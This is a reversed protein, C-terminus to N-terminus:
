APEDAAPEPSEVEEDSAVAQDRGKGVVYASLAAVSLWLMDWQSMGQVISKGGFSGVKPAQQDRLLLALKPPSDAPQDSNAVETADEGEEGQAVAAAASAGIDFQEMVKAYVQRSGVCAILAFVVAMAGRGYSSRSGAGAAWHVALGTALGVLIAMWGFEQRTSHEILMWAGAAAAAGIIGSLLVRM